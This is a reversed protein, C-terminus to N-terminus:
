SPPMWECRGTVTNCTQAGDIVAVLGDHRTVDWGLNCQSDDTCAELCVNEAVDCSYGPQCDNTSPDFTCNARCIGPDADSTYM